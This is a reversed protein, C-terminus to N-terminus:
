AVAVLRLFRITWIVDLQRRDRIDRHRILYADAGFDLLMNITFQAIAVMGAVGFDAPSLLRTLVLSSLIRVLNLAVLTGIVISPDRTSLHSLRRWGAEIWKRTQAMNQLTAGRSQIGMPPAEEDIKKTRVM